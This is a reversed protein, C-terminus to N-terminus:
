SKHSVLPSSTRTGSTSLQANLEHKIHRKPSKPLAFRGTVVVESTTPKPQFRPTQSAKTALLSLGTIPYVHHTLDVVGNRIDPFLCKVSFCLTRYETRTVRHLTSGLRFRKPQTSVCYIVLHFEICYEGPPTNSETIQEAECHFGHPILQFYHSPSARLM